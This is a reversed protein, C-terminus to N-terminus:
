PRERPHHVGGRRLIDTVDATPEEVRVAIEHPSMGSRYLRCLVTRVTLRGAPVDRVHEARGGVAEVAAALQSDPMATVVVDAFGAVVLGVADQPRGAPAVATVALGHLACFALCAATQKEACVGSVQIQIVARPVM